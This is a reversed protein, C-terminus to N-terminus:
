FSSLRSRCLLFCFGDISHVPSFGTHDRKKEVPLRRIVASLGLVMLLNFLNSGIVNSLAIENSGQVAAVSSVALEPFSTGMAVITLGIVLSPVHFTRAVNSSGDVFIDAGKVLFVFGVALLVINLLMEM